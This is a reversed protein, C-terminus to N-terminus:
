SFIAPLKGSLEKKIKRLTKNYILGELRARLERKSLWFIWAINGRPTSSAIIAQYDLRFNSAWDFKYKAGGMLLDYERCGDSIAQEISFTLVQTGISYEAFEEDYGSLYDYVTEGVRFCLEIAKYEQRDKIYYMRLTDQEFGDHLFDQFFELSLESAFAGPYGLRNWRAQHLEVLSEFAGDIEDASKISGKEIEPYERHLRSSRKRLNRRTNKSRSRIYEEFSDTLEIYPCRSYEVIQYQFKVLVPFSSKLIALTPTEGALGKLDLIDWDSKRQLLYTLCKEVFLQHYDPLVIFDLHEPKLEGCGIFALRRMGLSSREMMLPAIGIIRQGYQAELIWLAKDDGYTRWWTKQWTHTLFINEKNADFLLRDWQEEMGLFEEVSSCQVIKCDIM